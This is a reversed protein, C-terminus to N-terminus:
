GMSKFSVFHRLTKGLAMARESAKSRYKNNIFEAAKPNQEKARLSILLPQLQWHLAALNLYVNDPRLCLSYRDAFATILYCPYAMTAAFKEHTQRVGCM